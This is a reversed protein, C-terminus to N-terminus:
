SYAQRTLQPFEALWCFGSPAAVDTAAGEEIESVKRAFLAKSFDLTQKALKWYPTKAEPCEGGVGRGLLWSSFFQRKIYQSTLFFFFFSYMVYCHIHPEPSM